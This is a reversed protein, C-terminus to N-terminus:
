QSWHKRQVKGTRRKGGCIGRKIRKQNSKSNTRMIRPFLPQSMSKQTILEQNWPYLSVFGLLWSQDSQLGLKRGGISVGPSISSRSLSYKSGIRRRISINDFISNELLSLCILVLLNILIVLMLFVLHCYVLWGM